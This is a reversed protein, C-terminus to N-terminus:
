RTSKAALARRKKHAIIQDVEVQEMDEPSSVFKRCLRGVASSCVPCEVALAPSSGAPKPKPAPERSIVGVRQLGEVLQRNEEAVVAADLVRCGCPGDSGPAIRNGHPCGEPPAFVPCADLFQLRTCRGCRIGRRRVVGGGRACQLHGKVTKTKM